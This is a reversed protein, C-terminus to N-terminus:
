ELLSGEPIPPTATAIHSTISSRGRARLSAGAIISSSLDAGSSRWHRRRGVSMWIRVLSDEVMEDGGAGVVVVEADGDDAGERDQGCGRSDFTFINIELKALATASLMLPDFAIAMTILFALNIEDSSSLHTM